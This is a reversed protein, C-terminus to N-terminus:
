DEGMRVVRSPRIFIKAATTINTVSQIPALPTPKDHPPYVQRDHGACIHVQLKVGGKYLLPTRKVPNLTLKASIAGAHTRM